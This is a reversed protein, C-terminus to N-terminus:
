FGRGPRNDRNSKKRKKNEEIMKEYEEIQEETLYEKIKDHTEDMIKLHATMEERRNDFKEEKLTNLEKETEELIIKISEIQEDNLNLREDLNSLAKEVTFFHGPGRQQAQLTVSVTLLLAFALVLKTKM